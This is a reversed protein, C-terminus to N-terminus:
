WLYDDGVAVRAREAPVHALIESRATAVITEVGLSGTVEALQQMFEALDGSETEEAGISDILLLGPHRGVGHAAAVRLLAIVVAIRLRLREGPTCASFSTVTGGKGVKIQTARNITISQLSDIGFRQGLELIERNLDDLITQFGQEVRANAEDAAAQLVTRVDLGDTPPPQAPGVDVLAALQEVKADLGALELELARQEAMDAARERLRELSGHAADRETERENLQSRLSRVREDAAAAEEDLRALLNELVEADPQEDEADGADIEEVDPVNPAIERACVSCHGGVDEAQRREDDIPASCRPCQTPNMGHFLRHAIRAETLDTIRKREETAARSSLRAQREAKELWDLLQGCEASLTMWVQTAEDVQEFLTGFDPGAALRQRAEDRQAILQELEAAARQRIADEAAAAKRSGESAGRVATQAAALTQAWPVGVFMLLLRGPLGGQVNDGLVVGLSERSLYLGGAYAPWGHTQSGQDKVWNTFTALGLRDLMFSSMADSFGEHTTFTSEHGGCRLIGVPASGDIDFEVHFPEDDVDGDLEVHRLWARVDSQLESRPEGRLAWMLIEFVSTKGADNKETVLAWLGDGFAQEFAFPGEDVGAKEGSFMLRRVRLRHPKASGPATPIAHEILVAVADAATCGVREAVAEAFSTEATM